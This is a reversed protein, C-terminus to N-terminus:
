TALRGRCTFRRWIMTIGVRWAHGRGGPLLRRPAPRAGAAARRRRHSIRDEASLSFPPYAGFLDAAADHPSKILLSLSRRVRRPASAPPSASAAIAEDPAEPATWGVPPGDAGPVGDLVGEADGLRLAAELGLEVGETDTPM